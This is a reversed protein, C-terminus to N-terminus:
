EFMEATRETISGFFAQNKLNRLAQLIPVVGEDTPSMDVDRFADVDLLVVIHDPDTSPESAQTITMSNGSEPEQLVMRTLYARITSALVEPAAPPSTLYESLDVPLALRLRNIYRVGLRILRDPRIADRYSTWVETAKPLIEEWSTYPRLQSFAFADRRFQVVDHQDATKLMFGLQEQQANAHPRGDQIGFTAAVAQVKQEVPFASKWRAALEALREPDVPTTSRVRVEIVAEAIPARNLHRIRAMTKKGDASSAGIVV